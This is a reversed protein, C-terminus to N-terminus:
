GREILLDKLEVVEDFLSGICQDHSVMLLTTNAEEIQSFLLDLFREKHKYDLASVPEDAIVLEPIGILARAAAVRQQQGVSLAATSGGFLASDLGMATLIRKAERLLHGRTRGVRERRQKAFSLPLLVNDIVSGYPLLNFMQFIVGIHNVRVRDRMTNAMSVINTGLIEITGQHPINIGCLLSLLTSKGSGSPGILLVKSGVKLSFNDLEISFNQVGPWAFAVSSMNAVLPPIAEFVKINKESM